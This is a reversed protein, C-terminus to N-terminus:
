EETLIWRNLLTSAEYPNSKIMEAIQDAIRRLELEEESVELGVMTGDAEAVEGTIEEDGPLKPPVGAMEETSPLEPAQTAKRVMGFMILLSSVALLGLGIPKAWGSQMLGVFGGPSADRGILGAM